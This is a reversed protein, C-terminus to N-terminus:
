FLFLMNLTLKDSLKIQQFLFCLALAKQKRNRKEQDIDSNGWVGKLRDIDSNDFIYMNFQIGRGEGSVYLGITVYICM